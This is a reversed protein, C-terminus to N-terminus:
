RHADDLASYGAAVPQPSISDSEGRGSVTGTRELCDHQSRDILNMLDQAIGYSYPSDSPIATNWDTYEGNATLIIAAAGEAIIAQSPAFRCARMGLLPDELSFAACVLAAAVTGQDLDFEAQLLAHRCAYVSHNYVNLPGMIGLFIALQSPPVNPLQKFYQKASRLSKYTDAFEDASTNIMMKASNFDNPGNEIACYIGVAFPDKGTLEAVVDQAALGVSALLLGARSLSRYARRDPLDVLEEDREPFVLAQPIVVEHDYLAYRHPKPIDTAPPHLARKWLIRSVV